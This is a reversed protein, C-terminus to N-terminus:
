NKELTIKTKKPPVERNDLLEIFTRNISLVEAFDTIREGAALYYIQKDPALLIAWQKTSDFIEGIYRLEKIKYQSIGKSKKLSSSHSMAILFPDRLPNPKFQLIPLYVAYGKNIVLILVMMWRIRLETIKM